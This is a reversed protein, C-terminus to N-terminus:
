LTFENEGSLYKKMEQINKISSERLDNGKEALKKFYNKNEIRCVCPGDLGGLVVDSYDNPNVLINGLYLSTYVGYYALTDVWLEVQDFITDIEEKSLIEYELETLSKYNFLEKPFYTGVPYNEYLGIGTILPKNFKCIGKDCLEKQANNVRTILAFLFGMQRYEWTRDGVNDGIEKLVNIHETITEVTKAHVEYYDKYYFGFIDEDNCNVYRRYYDGWLIEKDDSEQAICRNLMREDLNNIIM